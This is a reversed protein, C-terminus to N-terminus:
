RRTAELDADSIHIMALGSYNRGFQEFARISADSHNAAEVRGLTKSRIVFNRGELTATTRTAIWHAM